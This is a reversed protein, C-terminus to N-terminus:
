TMMAIARQIATADIITICGDGNYDAADLQAEDLSEINALFRQIMTVDCIDVRGNGDADGPALPEAIMGLVVCDLISNPDPATYICIVGDEIYMGYIDNQMINDSYKEVDGTTLDYTYVAKPGSIYLLDGCVDLNSYCGAWFYVGARWYFEFSHLTQYSDNVYDYRVLESSYNSSNYRMAYLSGNKYCFRSKVSRFQANDYTSPSNHYSEYGTHQQGLQTTQILSDSTLFFDHYVLGQHGNYREEGSQEYAYPDMITPDDWTPDVHYYTGDICVKLWQHCMEESFIMESKIGVQALLFAYARSYDECKGTCDVMLTYTDGELLYNSHLVLEDHLVLAKEFDSMDSNVKSLFYESKEDFAAMMQEVEAASHTYSPEIMAIYPTVGTIYTSYRYDEGIYFLEPNMNIAARYLMPFDTTKIGKLRLSISSAHNRLGDALTNLADMHQSVYEEYATIYGSPTVTAASAGAAATLMGMALIASVAVSTLKCLLKKLKM